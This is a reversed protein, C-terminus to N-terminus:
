NCVQQLNFSLMNTKNIGDFGLNVLGHLAKMPPPSVGIMETPCKFSLIVLPKEGTPYVKKITPLLEQDNLLPISNRVSGFLDSLGQRPDLSALFGTSASKASTAPVTTPFGVPAPPIAQQQVPLRAVPVAAPIVNPLNLYPNTGLSAMQIPEARPAVAVPAYVPAIPVPASAALYPNGTPAHVVPVSTALYPNARPEAVNQVPWPMAPQPLYPNASIAAVSAGPMYPNAAAIPATAVSVAEPQAAVMVPVAIAPAALAVAAASAPKVLAAKATPKATIRPTVPKKARLKSKSVKSKAKLKAKAKPKAKAKVTNHGAPAPASWASGAYAMPVAACLAVCLLKAANKM